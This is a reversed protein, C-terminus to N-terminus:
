PSPPTPQRLLKSYAAKGVLDEEEYDRELEAGGFSVGEIYDITDTEVSIRGIRFVFDEPKVPKETELTWVAGVGKSEEYYVLIDGTEGKTQLGSRKARLRRAGWPLIGPKLGLEGAFEVEGKENFLTVGSSDALQVVGSQWLNTSYCNYGSLVDEMNDLSSEDRGESKCWKDIDRVQKRNLRHATVEVCWGRAVLRYNQKAQRSAPRKDRKTKTMGLHYVRRGGGALGSFRGGLKRWQKQLASQTNFDTSGGREEM